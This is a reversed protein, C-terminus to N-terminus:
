IVREVGVLHRNILGHEKHYVDLKMDQGSRWGGASAYADRPTLTRITEVVCGPHEVVHDHHLHGVYWRRETTEGWDQARDAAMVMPLKAPKCTDGHTVGILNKGFRHWHFKGPTLDVEVRPEKAYFASVAVALTYASVDDHNGVASIFRVKKHKELCRDICRLITALAIQYVKQYRTDVDLPHGSRTTRNSMNDAHFLDGVSVLVAEQAPPALDVLHDVAGYMVKEAAKLDFDKDGTEEAWAFLGVHPDGFPYVCMLDKDAYKPPATKKATGHWSEAAAEMAGVLLDFKNQRDASVKVWQKNVEGDASYETTYEKVSFGSPTPHQINNEPAYGRKAARKRLESVHGRVRSVSVGLAKAAKRNSGHTQVARVVEAQKPTAFELLKADIDVPM